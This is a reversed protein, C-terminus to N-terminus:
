EFSSFAALMAIVPQPVIKSYGSCKAEFKVIKKDRKKGRQIEYTKQELVNLRPRFYNIQGSKPQM